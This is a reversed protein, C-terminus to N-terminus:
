IAARLELVAFRKGELDSCVTLSLRVAVPVGDDAIAALLALANTYSQPAKIPLDSWTHQSLRKRRASGLCLASLPL